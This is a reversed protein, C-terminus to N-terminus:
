LRLSTCAENLENRLLSFAAFAALFLTRVSSIRPPKTRVARDSLNGTLRLLRESFVLFPNKDTPMLIKVSMNRNM